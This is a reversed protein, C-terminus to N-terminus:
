RRSALATVTASPRSLASSSGNANTATVVVRLKRGRDAPTVRYTAARARSIYSCVSARCRAWRYAYTIRADGSWSGSSALLRGGVRTSGKIAPASVLAPASSGPPPPPPSAGAITVASSNSAGGVNGAADYARVEYTLTAAPPPSADTYSTGSSTAIFAGSRYVRYGAVGANDTAAGWTLAVRPGALLQASLTGPASPPTTDPSPPPPPPPSGGITVAVTAGAPSTGTTRVSVANPADTFTQGTGLPADAFSSTGPTADILYSLERSAYDPALRITVGNVAADGASFNDFFAGYPQRFELYYYSGTSGRPIRLAQVGGSAFEQPAITYTGSVSATQVAGGALWGIQGKHWNSTHRTAAQGMIDFPDGYEVKTCSDSVAVRMGGSTCSLTAAHHTGLNHTLEHALVRLNFSGNIWVRSGPMEALGAWGCSPASPFAYVIHHYNALAVGAAAAAAGAAQAWSEVACGANTSAITYWGYVDGTLSTNGFSEERFYAHVSNANSFMVASAHAPTYPQSTDNSFNVLVVAVRRSGTTTAAFRRTAKAKLGRAHVVRLRGGALTGRVRVRMGNRFTSGGARWDLAIRKGARELSYYFRSRGQSFDDSHSVRLTGDLSVADDGHDALATGPALLSCIVAGVLVIPHVLRM